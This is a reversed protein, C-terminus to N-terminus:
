LGSTSVGCLALSPDLLYAKTRDFCDIWPVLLFCSSCCKIQAAIKSLMNFRAGNDFGMLSTRLILQPVPPVYETCYVQCEAHSNLM